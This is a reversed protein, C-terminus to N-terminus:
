SPKSSHARTREGTAGPASPEAADHRGTGQRVVRARTATADSPEGGTGAGTGPGDAVPGDEADDDGDDEAPGDGAPRDRNSARQDSEREQPQGRRPTGEPATSPQSGNAQSGSPQSGGDPRPVSEDMARVPQPLPLPLVPTTGATAAKERTLPSTGTLAYLLGLGCLVVAVGGVADLVYHNATGVIVFTTMLPYMLGLVRLWLYPSLVMIILGCWLAWGVHLSPMAAYQNSLKTFAGFEPKSLDVTGHVTDIYGLGPMLRPPALPYLWFGILGLLTAFGLSSRAARYMTPRRVYLLALLVLPVLFHFTSYFFNVSSELWPLEVVRHNLWHEVDLFLAGEIDLVQRGNAEAVHRQDPVSGRVFSYVWYGVRIVLLELLLNPRHLPRRWAPVLPIRRYRTVVGPAFETPIPRDWLASRRSVFPVVCAGLLAATLPVNESVVGLASINPVLWEGGATMVLIVFVPWVLRDSKHRGVRGVAALLIWLQQHQWAVPSVAVAVCGTLAAALLVQGDKACWAARRLGVVAVLGAAVGFLLLEGPGQLGIRLLMGHLSQNSVGDAPAGLGAGAVHHVWYTASDGPLAAWALATCGLFTGGAVLAARRRGVLWLLVAFLLVVPQLAAALGILAGAQRRPTAPLCGVLVLLVPLISMQGLAFTNRVPLSLVLVSVVVPAALTATRSSIPGPLARAVVLGLAVVLLLTGLTWFVGLSDEAAGTLPKLVLGSFPTGTFKDHDYLGGRFHLVGNPGIWTELDTLREDPPLRLVSAAQRAALLLAVLWLGALTMVTRSGRLDGLGRGGANTM